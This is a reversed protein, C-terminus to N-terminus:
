RDTSLREPRQLPFTRFRIVLVLSCLANRALTNKKTNRKAEIDEHHAM